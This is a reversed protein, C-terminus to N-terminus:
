GKWECNEVASMAQELTEYGNQRFARNDVTWPDRGRLDNAGIWDAPRYAQYHPKKALPYHVIWMPKCKHLWCSGHPRGVIQFKDALGTM